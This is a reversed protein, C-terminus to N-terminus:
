IEKIYVRESLEYGKGKLYEGVKDDLSSMNVLDCLAIHKAWYEFAELFETGKGNGRSEPRIYWGIETAVVSSGFPFPVAKGAIFGDESILIVDTNNPSTLLMNLLSDLQEESYYKKIHETSEIFELVLKKVEEFDSPQAIRM